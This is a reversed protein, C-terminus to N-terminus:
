TITRQSVTILPRRVEFITFRRSNLTQLKVQNEPDQALAELTLRGISSLDVTSNGQKAEELQVHIQRLRSPPPVCVESPPSL